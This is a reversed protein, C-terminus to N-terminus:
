VSANDPDYLKCFNYCIVFRALFKSLFEDHMFSQWAATRGEGLIDELTQMLQNLEATAEQWKTDPLSTINFVKLIALLPCHLFLTFLSGSSNPEIM